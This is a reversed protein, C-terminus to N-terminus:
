DVLPADAIAGLGASELFQQWDQAVVPDDPTVKRAFVLETLADHWIGQQALLTFRDRATPAAVLQEILVDDPDVRRLTGEVARNLSPSNTELLSFIWGYPRDVEIEQSLTVGVIGATAPLEVTEIAIARQNEDVLVLEAQVHPEREPVYFWLIPRSSYTLATSATAPLSCTELDESLTGTGPLLAILQASCGGRAGGSSRSQPRGQGDFGSNAANAVLFEATHSPQDPATLTPSAIAGPSVMLVSAIMGSLLPFTSTHISYIM